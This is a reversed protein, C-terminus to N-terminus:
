AQYRGRRPGPTEPAAVGMPPEFHRFRLGRRSLFAPDDLAVIDGGAPQPVADLRVRGDRLEALHRTVDDDQSHRGLPGILEFAFKACLEGDLAVLVQMEVDTRRAISPAPCAGKKSSTM